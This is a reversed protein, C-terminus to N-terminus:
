LPRRGQVSYIACSSARFSPDALLERVEALREDTMGEDVFADRLHRTHHAILHVGPSDANWLELRPQPDIDVLGASRMAEAANRGWAPDAGARIMLRTKAEQFEEYLKQSEADPM